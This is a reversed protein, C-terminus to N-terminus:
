GVNIKKNRLSDLVSALLYYGGQYQYVDGYVTDVLFAIQDAIVIKQFYGKVFIKMFFAM